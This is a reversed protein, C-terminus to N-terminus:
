FLPMRRPWMKSRNLVRKLATSEGVIEEFQHTTELEEELYSKQQESRKLAAEAEKKQSLDRIVGLVKHGEAGDMPGLTIDVPFESGDKRRGFLDLGVGMPRVRPHAAYDARHEPHAPRFREPILIEIPEGLLESRGYGFFKEVQANVEEIRGEPNTVVIADPSFEFLSRLRNESRRLAEEAQKRETIDNNIELIATPKGEADCQLVRRTAVAICKGNKATHTVEGEWYHKRRLTEEVEELPQSFQTQLLSHALKGLVEERKWGYKEEAGRNWFTIRNELDRVIISDHALEVLALLKEFLETNEVAM